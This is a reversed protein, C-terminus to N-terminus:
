VDAECAKNFMSASNLHYSMDLTSLCFLGGSVYGNGLINGFRSMVVKNSEFM